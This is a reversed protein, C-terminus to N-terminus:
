GSNEDPQYSQLVDIMEEKSHVDLKAYIRKIHGRVTNISIGLDDASFQLTRGHCLLAIIQRERQTFRYDESARDILREVSDESATIGTAGTIVQPDSANRSGSTGPRFLTTLYVVVLFVGLSVTMVMSNDLLGIWKALFEGLAIFVLMLAWGFSFLVYPPQDSRQAFDVIRIWWYALILYNAVAFLTLAVSSLAGNSVLVLLFSATTAATIVYWISLLNFDSKLLYLQAIPIFVIVAGAIRYVVHYVSTPEAMGGFPLAQMIGWVFSYIALSIIWTSDTRASFRPLRVTRPTHHSVSNSVARRFAWCGFLPFLVLAVGTCAPPLFSLAIVAIDAAALSLCLYLTAQPLTLQAYVEGWQVYLWGAAMSAIVLAPLSADGCANAWVLVGLIVLVITCLINLANLRHKGIVRARLACVLVLPFLGRFLTSLLLEIGGDGLVHQGYPICGLWVRVGTIGLLSIAAVSRNKQKQSHRKERSM